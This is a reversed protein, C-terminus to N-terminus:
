DELAAIIRFSACSRDATQRRLWCLAFGNIDFGTKITRQHSDTSLLQMLKSQETKRILTKVDVRRALRYIGGAPPNSSSEALLVTAEPRMHMGPVHRPAWVFAFPSLPPCHLQHIAKAIFESHELEDVHSDPALAFMFQVRALACPASLFIAENRRYMCMCESMGFGLFEDRLKELKKGERMSHFCMKPQALRVLFLAGGLPISIPFQVSSQFASEFDESIDPLTRAVCDLLEAESVRCRMESEFNSNIKCIKRRGVNEWGGVCVPAHVHYLPTCCNM